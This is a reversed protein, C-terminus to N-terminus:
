KDGGNEKNGEKNLSNIFTYALNKNNEFDDFLDYAFDFVVGSFSSLQLLIECFRDKNKFTVASILKQKYSNLKNEELKESVRKASAYASKMKKTMESGGEYILNNITILTKINYSHNNKSKFLLEIISDMRIGNLIRNVIEPEMYKPNKEDDRYWFKIGKYDFDDSQKFINIAKERVYVTEYYNKDRSKLIVEVDFGIYEASEKMNGFLTTRTNESNEIFSNSKKLEKISVNNNIFFTDYSKSFAFPIFDFIKEDKFEFTNNDWYYGLSKGKKGMDACYNVLRCVKNNDSFLLNENAFNSYLSKGRRYTEKILKLRNKEILDLIEEKNEGTYKIKGFISKMAQNAKLKDNILVIEDESLEDKLLINEVVKHHMADKFYKEVFLLYNEESIYNSNYRLYDDEFEYLESKDAVGNQYLFDFYKILGVIAASYRWDGTELTCDFVKEEM